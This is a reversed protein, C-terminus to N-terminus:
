FSLLRASPDKKTERKASFNVITSGFCDKSDALEGDFLSLMSGSIDIGSNEFVLNM